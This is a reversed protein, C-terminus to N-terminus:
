KQGSSKRANNKRRLELVLKLAGSFGLVDIAGHVACGIVQIESPSSVTVVRLLNLFMRKPTFWKPGNPNENMTRVAVAFNKSEREFQEVIRILMGEQQENM